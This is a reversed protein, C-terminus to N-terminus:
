ILSQHFASAPTRIREASPGVTTSLGCLAGFWAPRSRQAPLRAPLRILLTGSPVTRTSRPCPGRTRRALARSRKISRRRPPRLCVRRTSTKFRAMHALGQNLQSLNLGARAWNIIARNHDQITMADAASATPSPGEEAWFTDGVIRGTQTYTSPNMAKHSLMITNATGDASTVAGMTTGGFNSQAPTVAAAAKRTLASGLISNKWGAPITFTAANIPLGPMWMGCQMAAAYDTKAGVVTTRRSPCLFTKVPAGQQVAAAPTGFIRLTNAVIPGVTQARQQGNLQTGQEVYPLISCYLNFQQWRVAVTVPPIVTGM